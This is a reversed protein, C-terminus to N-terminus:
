FWLLLLFLLLTMCYSLITTFCCVVCNKRRGEEIKEQEEELIEVMDYLGDEVWLSGHTDLFLPFFIWLMNTGFCKFFNSFRELERWTVAQVLYIEESKKIKNDLWEERKGKIFWRWPIKPKALVRKRYSPLSIYFFHWNACMCQSKQLKWFYLFVMPNRNQLPACWKGVM